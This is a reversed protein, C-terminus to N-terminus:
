HYYQMFIKHYDTNSCKLMLYLYSQFLFLFRLLFANWYSAYWGCCYGDRGPPTQRLAHQSVLWGGQSCVGQSCVGRSCAGGGVLCGRSWSGGVLFGGGTSLCVGTFVYGECSRQPRYHGDSCFCFYFSKIRDCKDSGM